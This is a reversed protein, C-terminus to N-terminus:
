QATITQQGGSVVISTVNGHATKFVSERRLPRRNCLRLTTRIAHPLAIIAAIVIFEFGIVQGVYPACRCDLVSCHGSLTSPIGLPGYDM